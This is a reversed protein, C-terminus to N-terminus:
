PARRLPATAVRTGDNIADSPQAIVQEGERVGATIVTRTEDSPGPTVQRVRARGKEVTFVAWRDGSRFLATSPIALVGQGTWVVIAVTVRFDHGLAPPTLEALDLVVRVRQEELGLASVKTFAAPDVRRVRAAIPRAEGWDRITAAAGPHVSAADATLLDVTVELTTVNGLEILPTGTSIPGASERLVRLIRGAAPARVLVTPGLSADSASLLQTRVRALESRALETTARAADAARHQIEAEHGEHEVTKAPVANSKLLRRSTAVVSDAHLAAAVAEAQRAEAQDLAARASAVAAVAGARSREDLPRSAIPRLRAVIAGSAISDGANFGIRELTGDVPSTVVYVDRIRSRGEASITSALPGRTVQATAVPHASPRLALVVLAIVGFGAALSLSQKFRRTM